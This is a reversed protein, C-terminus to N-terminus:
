DAYPQWVSCISIRGHMCISAHYPMILKNM